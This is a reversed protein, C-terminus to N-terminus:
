DNLGDGGNSTFFQYTQSNYYKQNVVFVDFVMSVALDDATEYGNCGGYTQGSTGSGTVTGGHVNINTDGGSEADMRGSLQLTSQPPDLNPRPASYKRNGSDTWSKLPTCTVRIQYSNAAIAEDLPHEGFNDDYVYVMDGNYKNNALFAYQTATAWQNVSPESARPMIAANNDFIAINSPLIEIGFGFGVQCGFGIQFGIYTDPPIIVGQGNDVLQGNKTNIVNEVMLPTSLDPLGNLNSYAKIQKENAQKAVADAMNYCVKVTMIGKQFLQNQANCSVISM